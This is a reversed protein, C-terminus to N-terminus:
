RVNSAATVPLIERDTEMSTSGGPRAAGRFRISGSAPVTEGRWQINQPLGVNVALLRAM